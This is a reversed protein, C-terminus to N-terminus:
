RWLPTGVCQRRRPHPPPPHPPFCDIATPRLPCAFVDSAPGPGANSHCQDAAPKEVPRFHMLYTHADLYRRREVWTWLLLQCPVNLLTARAVPPAAGRVQTLVVGTSLTTPMCCFIAFGVALEPPALPLRLVAPALASTLGLVATLGYALAAPCRLADRVEGSNLLLGSLFFM